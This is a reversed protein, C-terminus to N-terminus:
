RAIDRAVRCSESLVAELKAFHNTWSYEEGLKRAAASWAGNNSTDLLSLLKTKLEEPDDARNVIGQALAGQLVEAAGVERSVLVPLGSALAELVVNGFAEQLAPLAVLDAAAYYNEVDEQRGAFIIRGPAVAHAWDQYRNLRADAGVVLLFVGELASSKWVALLRDLGKRRFGSGVFLVLRADMPIKWLNRVRHRAEARRIPHFRQSDVGNYLVHIKDPAVAYHAMIDRKVEASVAIIIQCGTESFQRKELLLVSRHYVSLWQWIRRARGGERAYRELFGRHTGGGSRLVDQRLLRGFSIVVDCGTLSGVLRPAFWAFSWLRLTRGLPLVPVRHLTVNAPADVAFESCFLHVDHGLDRLGAATQFLDKETGGRLDLRKHVLAIKM